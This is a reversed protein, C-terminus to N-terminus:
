MWFNGLDNPLSNATKKRHQRHGNGHGNGELEVVYYDQNYPRQNATSREVEHPYGITAIFRCDANRHAHCCLVDVTADDRVQPYM